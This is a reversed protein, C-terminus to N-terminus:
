GKMNGPHIRNALLKPFCESLFNPPIRDAEVQTKKIKKNKKIM